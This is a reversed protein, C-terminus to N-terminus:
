THITALHPALFQSAAGTALFHLLELLEPILYISFTTQPSSYALMQELSESTAISFYNKREFKTELNSIQLENNPSMKGAKDKPGKTNHNIIALHNSNLDKKM